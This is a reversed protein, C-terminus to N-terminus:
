HPARHGRVLCCHSGSVYCRVYMCLRVSVSHESSRPATRAARPRPRTARARAAATPPRARHRPRAASSSSRRSSRRAPAPAASGGVRASSCCRSACCLLSSASPPASAARSAAASVPAPPIPPAVPAPQPSSHPSSPAASSAAVPQLPCRNSRPSLPPVADEPMAPTTFFNLPSGTSSLAAAGHSLPRTLRTRYLWHRHAHPPPLEAGTRRREMERLAVSHRPPLRQRKM